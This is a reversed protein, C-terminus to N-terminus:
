ERYFDEFVYNHLLSNVSDEALAESQHLAVNLARLVRRIVRLQKIFYQLKTEFLVRYRSERVRHIARILKGQRQRLRRRNQTVCIRGCSTLAMKWRLRASCHSLIFSLLNPQSFPLTDPYKWSIDTQNALFIVVAPIRDFNFNYPLENRTVDIMYFQILEPSSSFYDATSHYISLATTSPAHWGGGSFFVVVDHSTNHRNEILDHFTRQTLRGLVREDKLRPHVSAVQEAHNPRIRSDEESMFHNPILYSHYDRIFERVRKQSYFGDMVSFLERNADIAIVLPLQKEILGWKDLFYSYHLSDLVAFKLTNNEEHEHCGMGRISLNVTPQPEDFLDISENREPYKMYDYLRGRMCSDALRLERDHLRRRAILKQVATLEPQSIEDYYVCCRSLVANADLSGNRVAVCKETAVLVQETWHSRRKHSIEQQESADAHLEDEWRFKASSACAMNWDVSPLLSRCCLDMKVVDEMVEACALRDKALAQSIYKQRVIGREPVEISLLDEEKCNWYERALETFLSIDSQGRYIPTLFTVLLLMSSQNLIRAFKESMLETNKNYQLWKIPSSEERNHRVWDVINSASAATGYSWQFEFDDPIYMVIDGEFRMGMERAMRESTVVAFRTFEDEMLGTQLVMGAAAFARYGYPTNMEKFPFYGVVSTHSNRKLEDLQKASRIVHLPNRVNVVWRYIHDVSHEGQYVTYVTSSYAVILPFQYIKYMNRCEGTTTWCNVAVFRINKHNRLVLAVVEFPHKLQRSHFSWPAYYMAVLLDSRGVARDPHFKGTYYDTLFSSSHNSFFPRPGKPKLVTPRSYVEVIIDWISTAAMVGLIFILCKTMNKLTFIKLVFDTVSVDLPLATERRLKVNQSSEENDSTSEEAASAEEKYNALFAEVIGDDILDTAEKEAYENLKQYPVTDAESCNESTDCM